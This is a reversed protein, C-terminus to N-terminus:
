CGLVARSGGAPRRTRDSYGHQDFAPNEWIRNDSVLANALVILGHMIDTMAVDTPKRASIRDDHNANRGPRAAHEETTV